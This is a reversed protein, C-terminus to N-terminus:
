AMGSWAILRACCPARFGISSLVKWRGRWRSWPCVPLPSSPNPRRWYRWATFPAPVLEVVPLLYPPNGPHAVLCRHRDPLGEAMASATIASSSSALVTEPGTGRALRELLAQKIDLREPAAEIVLDAEAIAAELDIDYTLRAAIAEPREDLLGFDNLEALREGIVRQAAELQGPNVDHLVARFGARAFVIAWGAGISGAGVLAIKTTDSLSSSM